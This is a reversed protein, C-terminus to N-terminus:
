PCSRRLLLLSESLSVRMFMRNLFTEIIFMGVTRSFILIQGIFAVSPFRLFM